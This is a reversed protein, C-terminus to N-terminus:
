TMSPHHVIVLYGKQQPPTRCRKERDGSCFLPATEEPQITKLKKNFIHLVDCHTLM